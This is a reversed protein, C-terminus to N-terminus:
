RTHYQWFFFGRIFRQKGLVKLTPFVPNSIAKYFASKFGSIIEVIKFEGSSESVTKM